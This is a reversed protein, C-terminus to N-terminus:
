YTYEVKKELVEVKRTLEEINDEMIIMNKSMTLLAANKEFSNEEIDEIELDKENKGHKEGLEVEKRVFFCLITLLFVPLRETRSAIVNAQAM